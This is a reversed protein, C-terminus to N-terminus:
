KKRGPLFWFWSRHGRIILTGFRKENIKPGLITQHALDALRDHATDLQLLRAILDDAIDAELEDVLLAIKFTSAHVNSM